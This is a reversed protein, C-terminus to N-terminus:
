GLAGTQRLGAIEAPSLALVEALVADTDAGLGPAPGTARGLTSRWPLGPLAGGDHADWFGRARLHKSAALDSSNALPAHPVGAERLVAAAEAATLRSAWGSLVGDIGGRREGRQRLGWEALHAM